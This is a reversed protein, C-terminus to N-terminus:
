LKLKNTKKLLQTSLLSCKNLIYFQYSEFPGSNDLVYDILIM